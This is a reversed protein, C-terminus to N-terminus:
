CAILSTSCYNARLGVSSLGVLMTYLLGADLVLLNGVFDTYIRWCRFCFRSTGGFFSDVATLYNLVSLGFIGQLKIYKFTSVLELNSRKSPM